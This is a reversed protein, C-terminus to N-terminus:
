CCYPKAAPPLSFSPRPPRPLSLHARIVIHNLLFASLVDVGIGRSPLPSRLWRCVALAPPIHRSSLVGKEWGSARVEERRASFFILVARCEGPSAGSTSTASATSEAAPAFVPVALASEVRFTLRQLLDDGRMDYCWEVAGGAAARAALQAPLTHRSSFATALRTTVVSQVQKGEETHSAVLRAPSYFALLEDWTGRPSRVWAEGAIM